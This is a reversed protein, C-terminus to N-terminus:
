GKTIELESNIIKSIENAKNVIMFHGGGKVWIVRKLNRNNFIRDNDGQIHTINLKPDSLKKWNMIKNIAWVMFKEDTDDIIKRLLKSTENSKIGFFYNATLKNSWKLIFSPIVKYIRSFSALKLDIGYEERSKVSSIIMLKDVEIQKSIEQAIIGGFSVGILIVGKSTDIQQILRKSYSSLSENKLPDVWKIFTETTNEIKLFKFVREDAGLGSIYYINKSM